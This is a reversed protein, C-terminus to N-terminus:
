SIQVTVDYEILIVWASLDNLDTGESLAASTEKDYSIVVNEEKAPITTDTYSGTNPGNQLVYEPQTERQEIVNTVTETSVFATPSAKDVYKLDMNITEYYQSGGASAILSSTRTNLHSTIVSASSSGPLFTVDYKRVRKFEPM